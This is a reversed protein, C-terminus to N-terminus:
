IRVLKQNNGAVRFGYLPKMERVLIGLAAELHERSEPVEQLTDAAAVRASMADVVVVLDTRLSFPLSSEVGCEPLVFFM